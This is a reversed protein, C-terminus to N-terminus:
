LAAQQASSVPPAANNIEPTLGTRRDNAKNEPFVALDFDDKPLIIRNFAREVEQSVAEVEANSVHKVTELIDCVVARLETLLRCVHPIASYRPEYSAISFLLFRMAYVISNGNGWDVCSISGDIVGCLESFNKDFSAFGRMWREIEFLRNSLSEPLDVKVEGGHEGISSVYRWGDNRNLSEMLLDRDNRDGRDAGEYELVDGAQWQMEPAHDFNDGITKTSIKGM